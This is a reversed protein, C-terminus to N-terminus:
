IFWGFSLALVFEVQQLLNRRNRQWKPEQNYRYLLPTHLPTTALIMGSEFMLKYLSVCKQATHLLESYQKVM